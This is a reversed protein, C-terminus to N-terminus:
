ASCHQDVHKINGTLKTLDQGRVSDWEFPIIQGGGDKLRDFVREGLYKELGEEEENSIVLTPRLDEYRKNILTFILIEEANSGFQVGVEDLVLLHPRCYKAIVESERLQDKRNGWCYDKIERVYDGVTTFAASHGAALVERIIAAALHTKGTGPKGVFALCRGTKVGESFDAAYETAAKLAQQQGSNIARFNGFTSVQFRM